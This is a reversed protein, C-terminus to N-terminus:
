HLSSLGKSMLVRAQVPFSLGQMCTLNRQDTCPSGLCAPKEETYGASSSHTTLQHFSPRVSSPHVPPHRFIPFLHCIRKALPSGTFM